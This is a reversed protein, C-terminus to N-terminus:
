RRKKGYQKINEGGYWATTRLQVKKVQLSYRITM